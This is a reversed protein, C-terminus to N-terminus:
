ISHTTKDQIKGNDQITLGVSAFDHEEKKPIQDATMTQDSISQRRFADGWFELKNTVSKIKKMRRFIDSAFCLLM